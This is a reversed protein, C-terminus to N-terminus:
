ARKDLMKRESPLCFPEPGEARSLIGSHGVTAITTASSESTKQYARVVGSGTCWNGRPARSLQSDIQSIYTVM